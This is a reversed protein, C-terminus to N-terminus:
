TKNMSGNATQPSLPKYTPSSRHTRPPLTPQSPPLDTITSTTTATIDNHPQFTICLPPSALPPCHPQALDFGYHNLRYEAKHQGASLINLSRRSIADTPTHLVKVPPHRCCWLLVRCTPSEALLLRFAITFGTILWSLLRFKTTHV